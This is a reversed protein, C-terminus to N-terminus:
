QCRVQGPSRLQTATARDIGLTALQEHQEPNTEQETLEVLAAVFVFGTLLDFTVAPMPVTSPDATAATIDDGVPSLNM